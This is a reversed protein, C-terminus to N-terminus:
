ALDKAASSILVSAILPGRCVPDGGRMVIVALGNCRTTGPWRRNPSWGAVGRSASGVLVRPVCAVCAREGGLGSDDPSKWGHFRVVAPLVAGCRSPHSSVADLGELGHRRPWGRHAWSTQARRSGGEVVELVRQLDGSQM